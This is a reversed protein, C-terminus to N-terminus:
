AEELITPRIYFTKTRTVVNVYSIAYYNDYTHAHVHVLWGRGGYEHCTEKPYVAAPVLMYKGQFLTPKPKISKYRRKGIATRSRSTVHWDSMASIPVTEEPEVTALEPAPEPTADNACAWAYLQAMAEQEAVDDKEIADLDIMDIM